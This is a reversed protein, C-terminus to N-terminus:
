IILYKFSYTKLASRGCLSAPPPISGGTDSGLAFVCLDAAVAAASGGSSGGPVRSHDHPNKTPGFASNETSTGMAFEDLNTKGLFHAGATRLKKIVTADYSSTYNELIKSGATAVTGEILLNDKIACPIGALPAQSNFTSLQFNFTSLYANLDKNASIKKHYHKAIESPSFKGASFGDLLSRITYNTDSMPM